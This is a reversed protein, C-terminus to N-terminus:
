QSFYNTFKIINEQTIHKEFLFFSKFVKYMNLFDVYLLKNNLRSINYSLINQLSIISSSVTKEYWHQISSTSSSEARNSSTAMGSTIESNTHQSNSMLTLKVAEFNLEGFKKM